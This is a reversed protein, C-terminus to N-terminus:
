MSKMFQDVNDLIRVQSRPENWAKKVEHVQRAADRLRQLLHAVVLELDDKNEELGLDLLEQGGDVLEEEGQFVGNRREVECDPKLQRFM